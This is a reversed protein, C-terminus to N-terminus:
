VLYVFYSLLSTSYLSINFLSLLYVTVKLLLEPNYPVVFANSYEKGNHVIPPSDSRRYNFGGGEKAETNEYFDKPFKKSCEGDQLCVSGCPGHMMKCTVAAFLNPQTVPDPLTASVVADVDEETVPDREYIILAHVHPLGRKQFEVTYTYGLCDGFRSKFMHNKGTLDNLFEKRKLDFVRAVVDPRDNATEGPLLNETIGRWNANATMTVFLTPNKLEKCAAMADFYAAKMAKPGPQFSTPLVVKDGVDRFNVDPNENLTHQLNSFEERRFTKQMHSQRYFNLQSDECKVYQDVVFESSLRGFAMVGPFVNADWQKCRVQMMYRYYEIASVCTGRTRRAAVDENEFVKPINPAWGHSGFPFMM